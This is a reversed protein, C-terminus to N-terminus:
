LLSEWKGSEGSELARQIARLDKMAARPGSRGDVDEAEQSGVGAILAKEFARFEEGVGDAEMEWEEVRGEEEGEERTPTFVITHTSGSWDIVLSGKSGRFSYEKPGGSEIGFSILFSGTIGSDTRVLGQLTDFPPLHPQLLSRSATLSSLPSPLIHRLGAFHHVGGDLLFGGQYEPVKRWATEFYKSGKAVCAHFQMGFTRLEGVKGKKLLEAAKVVSPLYNKGAEWAQEIITPQVLIPLSLIVTQIDPRALLDSLNFGPPSDSSYLTPPTPLSSFSPLSLASTLLSQASTTSRSYIARLILSPTSSLAPLHAAQAFLGAGLIAVGHETQTSM